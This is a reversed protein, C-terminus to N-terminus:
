YSFLCVKGKHRFHSIGSVKKRLVYLRKWVQTDMAVINRPAVARESACITSYHNIRSDGNFTASRPNGKTATSHPLDPRICILWVQQLSDDNALWHHLPIVFRIVLPVPNLEPCASQGVESDPGEHIDLSPRYVLTVSVVLHSEHFSSIQSFM